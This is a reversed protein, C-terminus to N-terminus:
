RDISAQALGLSSFWDEQNAPQSNHIPRAGLIEGSLWGSIALVWEPSGAQDRIRDVIANMKELDGPSPFSWLPVWVPRRPQEYASMAETFSAVSDTPIPSLQFIRTDDEESISRSDIM